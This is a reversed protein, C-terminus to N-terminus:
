ERIDEEDMIHVQTEYEDQLIKPTVGEIKCCCRFEKKTNNYFYLHTDIMNPIKIDKPAGLIELLQPYTEKRIHYLYGLWHSRRMVPISKCDDSHVIGVTNYDPKYVFNIFDTSFDSITNKNFLKNKWYYTKNTHLSDIMKPFTDIKEFKQTEIDWLTNGKYLRFCNFNVSGYVQNVYPLYPYLKQEEIVECFISLNGSQLFNLYPYWCYVRNIGVDFRCADVNMYIISKSYSQIHLKYKFNTYAINFCGTDCKEVIMDGYFAELKEFHYLEVINVYLDITCREYPEIGRMTYFLFPGGLSGEKLKLNNFLNDTVKNFFTLFEDYPLLSSSKKDMDFVVNILRDYMGNDNTVECEDKYPNYNKINKLSTANRWFDICPIDELTENRKFLTQWGKYGITELFTQLQDMGLIVGFDGVIDSTIETKYKPGMLFNNVLIDIVFDIDTKPKENRYLALMRETSHQKDFGVDICLEKEEKFHGSFRANLSEFRQTLVNKDFIMEVGNVVLEISDKKFM